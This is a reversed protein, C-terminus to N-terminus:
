VNTEKKLLDEKVFFLDVKKVYEMHLASKAIRGSRVYNTIIRTMKLSNALLLKTLRDKPTM